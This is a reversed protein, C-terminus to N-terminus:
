KAEKNLATAINDALASIISMPDIAKTLESIKKYLEENLAQTKVLHNKVIEYDDIKGQNDQIIQKQDAVVGKLREVEAALKTNAQHLIDDEKEKTLRYIEASKEKLKIDLDAIKEDNNWKERKAVIKMERISSENAENLNQIHVIQSKLANTEAILQSRTKFNLM